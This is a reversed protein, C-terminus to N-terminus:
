QTSNSEKHIYKNSRMSNCKRRLEAWIYQLTYVRRASIGSNTGNRAGHMSSHTKLTHNAPNLVMRCKGALM